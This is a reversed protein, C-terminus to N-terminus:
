GRHMKAALASRPPLHSQISLEISQGNLLEAKFVSVHVPGQFCRFEGKPTRPFSADSEPHEIM